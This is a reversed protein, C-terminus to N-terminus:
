NEKKPLIIDSWQDLSTTSGEPQKQVKTSQKAQKKPARKTPARKPAEQLITTLMNALEPTRLAEALSYFSQEGHKKLLKLVDTLLSVRPDDDTM